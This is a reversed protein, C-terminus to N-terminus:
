INAPQFSSFIDKLYCSAFVPLGLLNNNFLSLFAEM